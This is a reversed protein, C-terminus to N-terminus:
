VLRRTYFLKDDGFAYFDKLRAELIFGNNEYFGRTSAYHDMGSTEAILISCGMLTAERCTENLLEKGIGRGRFDNHTVIWYLDFSTRSISIPGYCSYAVTIGDVEAFVFYYESSIGADLREVILEVAIEVEHDYFFGTSKVIERIREVDEEVPITRFFVNM